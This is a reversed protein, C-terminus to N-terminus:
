GPPYKRLFLKDNYILAKQATKAQTMRWGGSAFRNGNEQDSFISKIEAGKWTIIKQAIQSGGPYSTRGSLIHYPIGLPHM